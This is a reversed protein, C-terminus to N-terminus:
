ECIEFIGDYEEVTFSGISQTNEEVIPSRLSGSIFYIVSERLGDLFFSFFHLQPTTFYLVIGYARQRVRKLSIM